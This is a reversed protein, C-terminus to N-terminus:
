EPNGRRRLAPLLSRRLASGARRRKEHEASAQGGKLPSTRNHVIDFVAVRGSLAGLRSRGIHAWASMNIHVWGQLVHAHCLAPWDLRLM